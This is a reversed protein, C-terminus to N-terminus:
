FHATDYGLKTPPPVFSPDTITGNRAARPRVCAFTRGVRWFLGVVAVGLAGNVYSLEIICYPGSSSPRTLLCSLSSSSTSPSQGFGSCSWREFCSVHVDRPALHYGAAVALSLFIVHSQLPQRGCFCVIDVRVYFKSVRSPSGILCDVSALRRGVIRGLRARLCRETLCSGAVSHVHNRSRCPSTHQRPALV